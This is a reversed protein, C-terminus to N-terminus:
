TSLFVSLWAKGRDRNECYDEVSLRGEGPSDLRM